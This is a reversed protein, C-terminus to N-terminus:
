VLFLNTKVMDWICRISQEPFFSIAISEFNEQIQYIIRDTKFSYLLICVQIICKQDFHLRQNALYYGCKKLIIEFYKLTKRKKKLINHLFENGTLTRKTKLLSSSIKHSNEWFVKFHLFTDSLYKSQKMMLLEHKMRSINSKNNRWLRKPEFDSERYVNKKNEINVRPKFAQM